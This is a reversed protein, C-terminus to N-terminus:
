ENPWEKNGAQNYEDEIKSITPILENLMNQLEDVTAYEDFFADELMSTMKDKLLELKENIRVLQYSVLKSRVTLGKRLNEVDEPSLLWELEEKQEPIDLDWTKVKRTSVHKGVVKEM